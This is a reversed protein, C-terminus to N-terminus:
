CTSGDDTGRTCDADSHHSANIRYCGTMFLYGSGGGTEGWLGGCGSLGSTSMQSEFLLCFMGTTVGPLLTRTVPAFPKTAMFM